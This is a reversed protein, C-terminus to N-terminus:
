PWAEGVSAPTWAGSRLQQNVAARYATDGVVRHVFADRDLGVVAAVREVMRAETLAPWRRATARVAELSVPAGNAEMSGPIARYCAVPGAAPILAELTQGGVRIRDAALEVVEYSDGVSETENMRDLQSPSLLTLKVHATTGPSSAVTAPIAGYGSVMAAFVVDIGALDASVVPIMRDGGFDAFKRFLQTPAANSGVALVLRRGDALAAADADRSPCVRRTAADVVYSGSPRAYPYSLARAVLPDTATV